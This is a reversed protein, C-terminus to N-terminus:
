ADTSAPADAKVVAEASASERAAIAKEICGRHFDVAEKHENALRLTTNKFTEISANLADFLQDVQDSSAEIFFSEGDVPGLDLVQVRATVEILRTLFSKDVLAAETGDALQLTLIDSPNQQVQKCLQDLMEPTLIARTAITDNMPRCKALLKGIKDRFILVLNYLLVIPRSQDVLRARCEGGVVLPM